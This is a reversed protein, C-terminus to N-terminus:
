LGQTRKKMLVRGEHNPLFQTEVGLSPPRGQGEPFKFDYHTLVHAMIAKIENAAFFRGPCAHRGFGFSMSQPNSSAYQMKGAREPDVERLKAFRFADFKEPDPYIKPDMSVAQTAVGVSTHAPIVFGDSMPYDVHVLREMTVSALNSPHHPTHRPYTSLLLPNFRQSEKLFSDMKPMMNFAQKTLHGDCKELANKLEERLPAIIEPMECLDYILQTPAAASTHIAAFSVKLQVDAIFQEATEEGKANEVMWQLLDMPTEGTKKREKMMPILLDHALKYHNKIKAIEPIFKAAIPRLFHPYKKIKQAGIFGDVAFTITTNVWEKHQSLKTGGFMRSSVRGVLQTFKDAVMVETWDDCEPWVDAFSDLIEEEIAPMLDRTSQRRSSAANLSQGYHHIEGRVDADWSNTLQIVHDQRRSRVEQFTAVFDVKDIPASKLEEIYKPHLMLREGLPSPVYFLGGKAMEYGERLLGRADPIFRKRAAKVSGNKDLGVIPIGPALRQRKSYSQYASSTVLLFIVAILAPTLSFPQDIAKQAQQYLSATLSQSHAM